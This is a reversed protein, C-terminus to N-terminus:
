TRSKRLTLVNRGDLHEYKVENMMRKVMFLGLGGIAREDVSLSVDPDKKELPNFKKGADSFVVIVFADEVVVQVTFDPAGSYRVINSAIEDIAVMMASKTKESCEAADLRRQLFLTADALGELSAPFARTVTGICGKYDFALVTIDDAQPAKGAFADVAEIVRNCCVEADGAGNRLTAELRADGLLGGDMATAETVGDTYLFLRDGPRLRVSDERYKAGEMAALVLARKVKLMEVTGDAHRIFPPNHGASVFKLEGTEIDLIGVWATVFMEAANNACLGDNAKSIAVALDPEATVSSKIATKSRMMFLAAPVGKGSVDAMVLCLKGPGVFYFDYFDGGVEKATRMKAYLDFEKRGPYPPFVSPLASAQINKALALDRQRDAEEKAYFAEMQKNQERLRVSQGYIKLFFLYGVAFLIFMIGAASLVSANRSRMLDDMPFTVYTMVDLFELHKRWVISKKGFVMGIAPGDGKGFNLDLFGTTSAKVGTNERLFTSLVLDNDVDIVTYYGNDAIHESQMSQALVYDRRQADGPHISDGIQVFGGRPFSIGVFKMLPGDPMDVPKRFPQTVYHKGANLTLFEVTNSNSAFDFGVLSPESSALVIGNMGVISVRDVYLMKATKACDAKAATEVDGWDVTLDQAYRCLEPETQYELNAFISEFGDRANAAVRNFVVRTQLTWVIAVAVAFAVFLSSFVIRRMKM